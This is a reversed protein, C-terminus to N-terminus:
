LGTVLMAREKIAGRPVGLVTACSSAVGRKALNVRSAALRPRSARVCVLTDSAKVASPREYAAPPM